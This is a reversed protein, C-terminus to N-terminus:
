CLYFTVLESYHQFMGGVVVKTLMTTPNENTHQVNLPSVDVYELVVGM